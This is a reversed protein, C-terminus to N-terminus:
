YNVKAKGKNELKPRGYDNMRPQGTTPDVKVKGAEWHAQGPHSSDMTQQQVSKTSTTGYPVFTEYGYERGSANSSQSTPQQSTPIGADRMAQRRAARSTNATPTSNGENVTLSEKVRSSKGRGGGGGEVAEMGQVVAIAAFVAKGTTIKEGSFFLNDVANVGLGDLLGQTLDVIFAKFPHEEKYSATANRLYGKQDGDPDAIPLALTINKKHPCDPKDCMGDPDIRNMPNNSCFHYPTLDVSHDALPDISNWRGIIPDYFRAGYDYQGLEDQLEKGNYLYNNTGATTSHRLGFAYYNDQQLPRVVGAYIDFSYRVNGLHDSLNYQYAYTGSQNLARGEETQIFDITGNTYQIGDVYDTTGTINSVKKLKQGTADYTYTLSLGSKTATAPLNLHNYTLTVGNRGDTTANGNGDYGYNGTVLPGSTISNLRNGTYGYVGATGGDRSLSAINGMVDYTLVESMSIGTSAGNTLRNLSNYQYSFVNPFSAGSGWLQASINGNYQPTSLTDYGLKMSFENSTSNRMWGRENYALKTNQYFSTGDTSHLNKQKLQGIENYELKNLTIEGQSNINEKTGIKRGMHDYSFSNAITTTTSNATHTRTSATLEGAFNYSNDVVDTGGLHNEGKTTVVRGDKDYYNVTLLMTGTGLVTTRTGTPLGMTRAATVQTTGNPQGFTNAFFDYDDYYSLSHFYAISVPFALNTYGSGYTTGLNDREEWLVVHADVLAQVSAWTGANTYLGTMVVRGLADYKTFLWQNNTRQVSDQSLVLQDLKNYVMYEWGKGPVKKEILRKRGDYHYGYIYGNFNADAETFSTATVAPPVVYRLNGYDDYIYYTSLSVSETEWIRKLVVRGELDRFEETTGSKGSSWNEDRSIGKYLKGAGYPALTEAGSSTVKWLAVEGTTNAGQVMRVTHGSGGISGSYPQWVAGPAGQELVRNLPSAEFVTRSFPYATKAVNADWSGSGYFSSQNTLPSARFSGDNGSQEAYPLYKLEERGLADYVVAQVIDKKLPSGQWQVSQLPRGLGDLYQISRNASDVPLLALSGATQHGQHKVVTEMVFNRNLTPLQAKTVVASLCLLGLTLTYTKKM